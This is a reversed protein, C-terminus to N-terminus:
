LQITKKVLINNKTYFYILYKYNYKKARIMARNINMKDFNKEQTYNNFGYARVGIKKEMIGGIHAIGSYAPTIFPSYYKVFSYGKPNLAEYYWKESKPIFICYNLKNEITNNLTTLETIYQHIIKKDGQNEKYTKYIKYHMPIVRIQKYNSIIFLTVVLFFSNKLIVKQDFSNHSIKYIPIIAFFLGCSIFNLADMKNDNVIIISVLIILLNSALLAEGIKSTFREKKLSILIVGIISNFFIAPYWSSLNILSTYGEIITKINILHTNGNGQRIKLFYFYIIGLLLLGIITLQFFHRLKKVNRLFLFGLFILFYFGTSIKTFFLIIFGIFTIISVNFSPIKKYNYVCFSIINFTFILSLTYSPTLYLLQGSLLPISTVALFIILFFLLHAEQHYYLNTFKTVGVYVSKILLPVFIIPFFVNYFFLSKASIFNGYGGILLHSFWHYILHPTGDLGTSPNHYNVSINSLTSHFLTDLSGPLGGLSISQNFFISTYATSNYLFIYSTFLFLLSLISLFEIRIKKKFFDYLLFIGVSYIFIKVVLGGNFVIGIFSVLIISIINFVGYDLITNQAKRLLYDPLLVLVFGMFSAISYDALTYNRFTSYDILFFLSAWLTIFIITSFNITKM